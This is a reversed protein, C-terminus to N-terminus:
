GRAFEPPIPEWMLVNVIPPLSMTVTGNTYVTIHEDAAPLETDDNFRAIVEGMNETTMTVSHEDANVETVVADYCGDTIEQTHITLDADVTVLLIIKQEVTGEFGRSYAFRVVSDGAKVANLKFYQTGGVGVANDPNPDQVYEGETDDIEVSSGGLVFATWTYGTTPNSPLSYTMGSDSLAPTETVAAPEGTAQCGTTLAACLAILLIVSIAIKNKM